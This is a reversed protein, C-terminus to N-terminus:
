DCYKILIEYKHYTINTIKVYVFPNIILSLIYSYM